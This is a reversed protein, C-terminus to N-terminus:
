PTRKSKLFDVYEIVKKLEDESLDAYSDILLQMEKSLPQENLAAKQKFDEELIGYFKCLTAIQAKSIAVDGIELQEYNYETIGLINAVDCKSLRKTQRLEKLLAATKTLSAYEFGICADEIGLLFDTSVEFIQALKILMQRDPERKNSEYNAYAQQTIGLIDAIQQQTMNAKKRLYKLNEM